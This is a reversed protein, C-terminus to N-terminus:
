ANSTQRSQQVDARESPRPVVVEGVRACPVATIARVITNLSRVQAATIGLVPYPCPLSTSTPSVEGRARVKLKNQFSWISGRSRCLDSSSLSPDHYSTGLIGSHYIVNRM